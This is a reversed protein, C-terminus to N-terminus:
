PTMRLNHLAELHQPSHITHRAIVLVTRQLVHAYGVAPEVDLAGNLLREQGRLFLLLRPSLRWPLLLLLVSCCCCHEKVSQGRGFFCCGGGGYRGGGRSRGADFDTPRRDM